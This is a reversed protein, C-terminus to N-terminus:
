YHTKFVNDLNIKISLNLVDHETYISYLTYRM